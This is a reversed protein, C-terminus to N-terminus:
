IEHGLVFRRLAEMPTGFDSKAGCAPCYHWRRDGHDALPSLKGRRWCRPCYPAAAMLEGEEGEPWEPLSRLDRLLLAEDGEDGFFLAFVHSGHLDVRTFACSAIMADAARRAASPSSLKVRIGM